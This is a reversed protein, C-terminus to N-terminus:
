WDVVCRPILLQELVERACTEPLKHFNFLFLSRTEGTRVAFMFLGIPTLFSAFLAPILREEPAGFGHKKM